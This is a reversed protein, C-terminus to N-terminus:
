LMANIHGAVVFSSISACVFIKALATFSSTEQIFYREITAIEESALAEVEEIVHDGLFLRQISISLCLTSTFFADCASNQDARSAWHCM